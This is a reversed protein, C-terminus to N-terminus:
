QEDGDWMPCGAGGFGPGFGPGQYNSMHTKMVDAQAQTIVGDAVAKDLAAQQVQKILDPLEAETKGQALAIERMTEGNSLRTTVEEPTLGVAEAFAAIMYERMFGAAKGNMMGYGFGQGGMMGPGRNIGGQGMMNGPGYGNMMGGPGVGFEGNTCTTKGTEDTVCNNYGQGMMNGMGYGFQRIIGGGQTQVNRAIELNNLNFGRISAYAVGAGGVVILCLAVILGAILIKKM